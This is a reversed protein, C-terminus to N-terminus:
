LDGQNQSSIRFNIAPHLYLGKKEFIIKIKPSSAFIKLEIYTFVNKKSIVIIKPCIRSAMSFNETLVKKNNILTIPTACSNLYSFLTDGYVFPQFGSAYFM